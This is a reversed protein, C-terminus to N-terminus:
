INRDYLPLLAFRVKRYAAAASANPSGTQLAQGLVQAVFESKLPPGDWFQADEATGSQCAQRPAYPVCVWSPPARHGDHESNFRADTSTKEVARM